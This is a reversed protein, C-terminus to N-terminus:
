PRGRETMILLSDLVSMDAGPSIYYVRFGGEIDPEKESIEGVPIGAPLIDSVLATSIRMGPRLDKYEPIYLLNIGGRGDGTLVGLDRTEDIVVPVFLLTSTLIDVWSHDSYVRSVRGVLFGRQLAPMGEEIGDRSGKDIRIENWWLAPPRVDIRAPVFGSGPAVRLEPREELTARLRANELELSRVREQLRRVGGVWSASESVMHRAWLAPREPIDLVVATVEVARDVVPSGPSVALFLLGISTAALGHLWASTVGKLM